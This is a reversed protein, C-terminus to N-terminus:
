TRAFLAVWPSARGLLLLAALWPLHGLPVHGDEALLAPQCIFIGLFTVESNQLKQGEAETTPM